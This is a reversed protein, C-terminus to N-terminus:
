GSSSTGPTGSPAGPASARPTPPRMAQEFASRIAQDDRGAGRFVGIALELVAAGLQEVPIVRRAGELLTAVKVNIWAKVMAETPTM